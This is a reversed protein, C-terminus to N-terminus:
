WVQVGAWSSGVLSGGCLDVASGRSVCRARYWSDWRSATDEDKCHFFVLVLAVVGGVCFVLCCLRLDSVGWCAEGQARVRQVLARWCDVVLEGVFLCVCRVFVVGAVGNTGSVRPLPEFFCYRRSTWNCVLDVVLWM